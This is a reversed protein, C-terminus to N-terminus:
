CNAVKSLEELSPNLNKIDLKNISIYDLFLIPKAGMVILDNVSM